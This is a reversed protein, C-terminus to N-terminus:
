RFRIFDSEHLEWLAGGCEPCSFGSPAGPREPDQLADMQLEAMDAETKLEDPVFDAIGVAPERTLRGAAAPLDRLPLSLDAGVHELARRPRNPYLADAPDQVVAVGGQGKVVALGAAGDDLVGSLVVGIVRPGYARAATRFLPDVAPRRSNERPGPAVRVYGPHVLLHHDPPAVYVRGHRIPGRDRAHAAPLPGARSLTQPLVSVGQPPLHLVVFV